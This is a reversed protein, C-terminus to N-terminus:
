NFNLSNFANPCIYENIEELLSKIENEVKGIERDVKDITLKLHTSKDSDPNEVGTSYSSLESQKPIICSKRLKKKLSNCDSCQTNKCIGSVLSRRPLKSKKYNLDM